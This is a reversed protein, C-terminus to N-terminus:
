QAVDDTVEKNALINYLERSISMNTDLTKTEFIEDNSQVVLAQLTAAVLPLHRPPSPLSKTNLVIIAVSAIVKTAESTTLGQQVIVDRLAQAQETTINM